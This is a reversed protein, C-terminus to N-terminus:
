SNNNRYTSEVVNTPKKRGREGEEVGRSGAKVKNWNTATPEALKKAAANNDASAYM